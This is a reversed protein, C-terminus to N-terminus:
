EISKVGSNGGGVKRGKGIGSKITTGALPKIFGRGSPKAANLNAQAEDKPDNAKVNMGSQRMKSALQMGRAHAAQVGPAKYNTFNGSLQEQFQGFTKM